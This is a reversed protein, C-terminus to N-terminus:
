MATQDPLRVFAMGQRKLAVVGAAIGAGSPRLPQNIHGIMVDGDRAKAIRAVVSAAALSAGADANVSFGAIGFGMQRIPPLAEPSYLAAAGRYWTPIEGSTATIAEAGLAIDNRIADLSGAPKLGYVPRTGLIPPVHRDGHNQLSFLNRHALFFGLGAPNRHMWLSTLFITAPIANDALVRALRADCAGPCADLTLAVTPKGSPPLRLSPEVLAPSGAALSVAGSGFARRTLLIM